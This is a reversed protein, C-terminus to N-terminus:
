LMNDVKTTSSLYVTALNSFTDSSHYTDRLDNMGGINVVRFLGFGVNNYDETLYMNSTSNITVNIAISDSHATDDVHVSPSGDITVTFGKYNYSSGSAVQLGNRYLLREYYVGNRQVVSYLTGFLGGAIYVQFSDTRAGTTFHALGYIGHPCYLTMTANFLTGGAHTIPPRVRVCKINHGVNATNYSMIKSNCDAGNYNVNVERTEEEISSISPIRYNNDSSIYVADGYYGPNSEHMAPSIIYNTLVQLSGNLDLYSAKIVSGNIRAGNIVSGNLTKGNLETANINDAILGYTNIMGATIANTQILGTNIYGGNVVTQGSAAANVMAQYNAYGLKQAFVDNNSNIDSSIDIAAISSDVYQETAINKAKGIAPTITNINLSM